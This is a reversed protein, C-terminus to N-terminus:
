KILVKQIQQQDGAVIRCLYLGTPVASVDMSKQQTTGINHTYVKRGLVDLLEVKVQTNAPAHEMSITLQDTAPNPYLKVNWSATVDEVEEVSIIYDVQQYFSLGGRYNGTVMEFKGDNDIDAVTISTREGEDIGSYREYVQDFAGAYLKNQDLVFVEINGIENAVMVYEIGDNDLEVIAPMSYGTIFGSLGVDIGGFFSNDEVADFQPSTTTGKNEFYYVEGRQRGIIMDLVGDHNVDYFFPASNRGVDINAYEAGTLTFSATDGAGATNTFYHLQGTEDGIMLDMDGDGDLDGVTPTLNRINQNGVLLQSLNLYDHEVIRYAPDSNTGVNEFLTLRSIYFNAADFYGYNGVLLDMKGDVNYDFFCPYAGEGLDIADRVLFSDTELEFTVNNGTGKDLYLWSCNVNESRRPHNPAALMDKRGDNDIDEYFAAPFINLEFPIDYAPFATDQDVIKDVGNTGGNLYRNLSPFSIDGVVLELYGDGNEDYAMLTSGPHRAGGAGPEPDTKAVGCTDLIVSETIGTEKISGWCETVLEFLTSDSCGGNEVSMNEFYDIYYGVSSFTLVDMDGDGNVDAMAPIDISSVFINSRGSPLTYQLSSVYEFSLRGNSNRSGKYYYMEGPFSSVIDKVGDCNYDLMLMWQRIIPFDKEYEPAYEYDIEGANGKNLFTMLKHGNADYGADYSGRNLVVLDEKGDNDLDVMNFQPNNLGGFWPEKLQNAGDSVPIDLDRVFGNQANINTSVLLTLIALVIRTANYLM